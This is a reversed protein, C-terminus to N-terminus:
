YDDAQPLNNTVSLITEINDLKSQKDFYDGKYMRQAAQKIDSANIGLEDSISSVFDSLSAKTDDIFTLQVVINNLADGLRKRQEDNLDRIEVKVEKKSKAM